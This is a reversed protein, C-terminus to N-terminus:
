AKTSPPPPPAPQQRVQELRPDIVAWDPADQTWIAVTPTGWRPHIRQLAAPVLGLAGGGLKELALGPISRPLGVLTAWTQEKIEARFLRAALVVTEFPLAYLMCEVLKEGLERIFDSRYSAVTAVVALLPYGLMRILMWEWGGALYHFDKWILARSWSRRSGRRLRLKRDLLPLTQATTDGDRNFVGFLAWSMLLLLASLAFNGVVQVGFAGQDFGTQLIEYVRVFASAEYLHSVATGILQAPVAGSTRIGVPVVSAVIPPVPLM